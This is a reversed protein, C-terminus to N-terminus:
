IKSIRNIGYELFKKLVKQSIKNKNKQNVDVITQVCIERVKVFAGQM